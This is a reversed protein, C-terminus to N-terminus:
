KPRGALLWRAILSADADSLDKPKPMGQPYRSHLESLRASKGLWEVPDQLFAALDAEKWDAELGDLSPGMPGGTGDAGHCISCMLTQHAYLAAAETLPRTDAAGGSGGANAPPAENSCAAVLAAVLVAALHFPRPSLFTPMHILVL